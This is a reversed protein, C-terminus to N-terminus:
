VKSVVDLKCPVPGECAVVGHKEPAYAEGVVVFEKYKDASM